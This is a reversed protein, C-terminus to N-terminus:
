HDEPKLMIYDIRLFNMKRCFFTPRLRILDIKKTNQEDSWSVVPVHTTTSKQGSEVEILIVNGTSLEARRDNGNKKALKPRREPARLIFSTKGM